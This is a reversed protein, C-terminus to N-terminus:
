KENQMQQYMANVEATEEAGGNNLWKQQMDAIESLPGAGTIVRACTEIVSKELDPYKSMAPTFGYFASDISYKSTTKINELVVDPAWRRDAISIVNFIGLKEQEVRQDYPPIFTV